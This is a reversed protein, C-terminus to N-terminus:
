YKKLVNMGRKVESKTIGRLLIGVNQGEKAEDLLKNFNEIATVVTRKEFNDGIILVEDNLRICGRVTGTVVTGGGSISFVDEINLLFSHRQSSIFNSDNLPINENDNSQLEKDTGIVPTIKPSLGQEDAVDEASNIINACNTDPLEWSGDGSNERLYRKMIDMSIANLKKIEIDKNSLKNKQKKMEKKLWDDYNIVAKKIDAIKMKHTYEVMANIYQKSYGWKEMEEIVFSYDQSTTEKILGIVPLFIKGAISHGLRDINTNFSKYGGYTSFKKGKTKIFYFLSGGVAAGGVGAAIPIAIPVAVPAVVPAAILGLSVGITGLFGLNSVAAATAAAATAAASATLSGALTFGIAVGSLVGFVGSTFLEDTSKFGLNISFKVEDDIVNGLNAEVPVITEETTM